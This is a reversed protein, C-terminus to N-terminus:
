ISEARGERRNLGADAQNKEGAKGVWVVVCKVTDEGLIIEVIQGLRLRVPGRLRFGNQSSDLILCPHRQEPRRNYKQLHLVFSAREKVAIRRFVRRETVPPNSVHKM